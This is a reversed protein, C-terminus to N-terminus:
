YDQYSAETENRYDELAADRIKDTLRFGNDNDQNVAMKKGLAEASGGEMKIKKKCSLLQEYIDKKM